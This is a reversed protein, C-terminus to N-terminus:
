SCHTDVSHGNRRQQHVRHLVGGHLLGSVSYSSRAADQVAVSVNCDFGVAWFAALLMGGVVM